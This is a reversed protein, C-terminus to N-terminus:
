KKDYRYHDGVKPADSTKVTESRIASWQGALKGKAALETAQELDSTYAELTYYDRDGLWGDKIREKKIVTAGMGQGILWSQAKLAGAENEFTTRLKNTLEPPKKGTAELLSNMMEEQHGILANMQDNMLANQPGLTPYNTLYDPIEEEDSSSSGGGGGKSMLLFFVIMAVGGGIFLIKQNKSMKGKKSPSGGSAPVIESM